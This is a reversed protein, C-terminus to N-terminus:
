KVDRILNEYFWLATKYSDLSVREDIAQFGILDIMPSFEIIYQSVDGPMGGSAGATIACSIYKDFDM